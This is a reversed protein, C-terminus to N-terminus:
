RDIRALAADTDEAPGSASVWGGDDCWRDEADDPQNPSPRRTATM